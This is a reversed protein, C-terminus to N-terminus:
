EDDLNIVASKSQEKQGIVILSMAIGWILYIKPEHLNGAGIFHIAKECFILFGSGILAISILDNYRRIILSCRVLIFLTWILYTIAAPIGFTYATSVFCNHMNGTDIIHRIRERQSIVGVSDRLRLVDSISTSIFGHGLPKQRAEYWALSWMEQRWDTTDSADTDHAITDDVLSYIRTVPNSISLLDSKVAYYGAYFIVTGFIFLLLLTKYRRLILYTAATGLTYSVINARNGSLFLCTLAHILLLYRVANKKIGFLLPFLFALLSLLTFHQLIVFRNVSGVSAIYIGNNYQQLLM